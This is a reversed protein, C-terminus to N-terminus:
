TSKSNQIVCRHPKGDIIIEQPPSNLHVVISDRDDVIVHRSGNQFLVERPDDWNMLAVAKSGYFRIDKPMGDICISKTPDDEILKLVAPDTPPVECPALPVPFRGM